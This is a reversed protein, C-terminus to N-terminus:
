FGVLSRNEFASTKFYSVTAEPKVCTDFRNLGFIYLINSQDIIDFWIPSGYEITQDVYLVAHEMDHASLPRPGFVEGNSWVRAVHWDNTENCSIYYCSGNDAVIAVDTYLGEPGYKTLDALSLSELLQGIRLESESATSITVKM